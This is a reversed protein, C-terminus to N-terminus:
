RYFVRSAEQWMSEFEPVLETSTSGEVGAILTFYLLTSSYSRTTERATFRLTGSPNKLLIQEDVMAGKRGNRLGRRYPEWVNM